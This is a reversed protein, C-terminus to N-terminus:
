AASWTQEVLRTISRLSSAVGVSRGADIEQRNWALADWVCYARAREYRERARAEPESRLVAKLMRPGFDDVITRLDADADDICLDGFDIIGTLRAREPDVLIHQEYLDAHLLSGQAPPALEELLEICVGTVEPELRPFVVEEIRERDDHYAAIMRGDPIETALSAIPFAHLQAFFGGLQDALAAQQDPAFTRLRAPTLPLGRIARHAVVTFGTSPDVGVHEPVPIPLDIARALTPLVAVERQLARSARDHKPVRVIWTNDLWYASCFDGAGASRVRAVPLQPLASRLTTAIATRPARVGASVVNDRGTADRDRRAGAPM